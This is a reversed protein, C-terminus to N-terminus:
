ETENRIFTKIDETSANPTHGFYEFDEGLIAVFDVRPIIEEALNLLEYDETSVAFYLFSTENSITTDQNMWDRIAIVRSSEILRGFLLDEREAILYVDITAGPTITEGLANGNTVIIRFLSYGEPAEVINNTDDNNNEVAPTTTHYEPEPDGFQHNPNYDNNAVHQTYFTHGAFFLMIILIVSIILGKNVGYVKNTDFNDENIIPAINMLNEDNQTILQEVVEKTEKSTKIENMKCTPCYNLSEPIMKGCKYCNM